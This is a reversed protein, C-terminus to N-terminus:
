LVRSVSGLFVVRLFRGSLFGPVGLILRLLFFGLSFFGKFWGHHRFSVVRLGLGRLGLAELCAMRSSRRRQREKQEGAVLSQSQSTNM